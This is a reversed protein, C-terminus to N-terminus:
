DFYGTEETHGVASSDMVTQTEFEEQDCHTQASVEQDGSESQEEVAISVFDRKLPTELEEQAQHAAVFAREVSVTASIHMEAQPDSLAASEAREDM